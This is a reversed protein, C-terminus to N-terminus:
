VNPAPVSEILEGAAAEAAEVHRHHLEHFVRQAEVAPWDDPLHSIPLRPDKRIINLWETTMRLTLALPDEVPRRLDTRDWRDLFEHYRAAIADLDFADRVLQNIDTPPRPEAVFVKVHESLALEELIPEVDIESHALWLGSQLPGFGAWTLKSRLDHRQRKWADPFSFGILTWARDSSTNVAGTNWIREGGDALIAESRPTLAFYARRGHRERELLGRRVMRSLTSRTAQEAVGVRSLAAIISQSFVAIHRQHVHDGLFTFMLSQPRLWPRDGDDGDDGDDRSSSQNATSTM